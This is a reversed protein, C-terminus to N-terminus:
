KKNAPEDVWYGQCDCNDFLSAEYERTLMSEGTYEPVQKFTQCSFSVFMKSTGMFVKEIWQPAVLIRKGLWWDRTNVVLYRISWTEDDIIFDEVCGFEGDPAEITFGIMDNISRLHPDWHKKEKIIESDEDDPVLYPIITKKYNYDNQWGYYIRFDKEFQRSVPKNSSLPPSDEIQKKTLNITISRENSNVAILAQPPILVQKGVLWNGTDAVLYRISCLQDDFYFEKAKGIEGNLSHLKYGKITKAEYLM